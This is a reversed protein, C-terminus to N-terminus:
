EIAQILFVGSELIRKNNNNDRVRWMNQRRRNDRGQNRSSSNNDLGSKVWDGGDGSCVWDEEGRKLRRCDLM